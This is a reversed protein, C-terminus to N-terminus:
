STVTFTHTPYSPFFCFVFFENVRVKETQFFFSIYTMNSFGSGTM